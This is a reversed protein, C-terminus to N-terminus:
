FGVSAGVVASLGAPASRYLRTSGAFVEYRRLPFMVGVEAEVAVSSGLVWVGRGHVGLAGWLSSDRYERSVVTQGVEGAACPRLSLVPGGVITPCVDLRGALLSQRVVGGGMDSSGVAGVAAARLTWDPLLPEFAGDLEVFATGRALLGPLVGGLGGGQIGVRWRLPRADADPQDAEEDALAVRAVDPRVPATAPTQRLEKRQLGKGTTAPDPGVPKDDVPPGPPTGEAEPTPRDPDLALALNLALVEAVSECSADEFERIAVTGSQTERELRGRAGEATAAINVVFDVRDGAEALRVLPARDGVRALFGAGDPCGETSRYWLVSPELSPSQARLPLTLALMM